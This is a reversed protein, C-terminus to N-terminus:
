AAVDADGICPDGATTVQVNLRRQERAAPDDDLRHLEGLDATEDNEAAQRCARDEFGLRPVGGLEVIVCAELIQPGRAERHGAAVLHIGPVLIPLFDLTRPGGRGAEDARFLYRRRGNGRVNRAGWFPDRSRTKRGEVEWSKGMDSGFEGGAKESSPSRSEMTAARTSTPYSRGEGMWASAMGIRSGPPSRRPRAGGPVPLGAANARGMRARMSMALRLGCASTSVGVRSSAM